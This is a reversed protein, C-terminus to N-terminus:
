KRYSFCLHVMYLPNIPKVYVKYVKNYGMGLQKWSIWAIRYLNLIKPCCTAM